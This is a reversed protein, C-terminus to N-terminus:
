PTKYPSRTEIPHLPLRGGRPDVIDITESSPAPAPALRPSGPAVHTWASEPAGQRPAPAPGLRTAPVARPPPKRGLQAAPPELMTPTAALPRSSGVRPKRDLSLDVVVDTALSTQQVKPEYGNAFAEIKHTGGPQFRARYPNSPVVVDDIMIRASSPSVQVVLENSAPPAPLPAPM